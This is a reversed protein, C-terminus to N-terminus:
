MRLADTYAKVAHKSACYAGQLPIARDSAVSGVNILAGGHQRFREVAIRSGLVVGWYNIEFLKREEEVPIEMIDGFISVGANNVWTDFGGFREIATDALRRLDSESTVDTPVAAAREGDVNLEKELQKVADENRAAVVVRAGQRCAMRATVLGIGSTAGTIVLVQDGLSKLNINM